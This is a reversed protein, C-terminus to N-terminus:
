QNQFESNPSGLNLPLQDVPSVLGAPRISEAGAVMGPPLMGTSLTASEGNELNRFVIKAASVEIVKMQMKKGQFILPFEDSESFERIGVLFKKESPMITTVRILKVIDELPTPPLAAQRRIPLQSPAKKVIPKVNPDQHLGFPDTERDNMSFVAKRALTYSAIDEGAYRSPTADVPEPAPAEQKASKEARGSATLLADAKQAYSRPALGCFVGLVVAAVILPTAPLITRSAHKM